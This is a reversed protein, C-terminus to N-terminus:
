NFNVQKELRSLIKLSLDHDRQRDDDNYIIHLNTYLCVEGCKLKLQKFKLGKNFLLLLHFLRDLFNTIGLFNSEVGSFGPEIAHRYKSNLEDVTM